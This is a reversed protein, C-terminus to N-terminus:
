DRKKNKNNNRIEIYFGNYSYILLYADTLSNEKGRRSKSYFGIM